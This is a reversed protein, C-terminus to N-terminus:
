RPDRLEGRHWAAEGRCEAVLLQAPVISSELLLYAGISAARNRRERAMSAAVDPEYGLRFELATDFWTASASGRTQRATQRGWRRHRERRNRPKPAEPASSAESQDLDRFLGVV